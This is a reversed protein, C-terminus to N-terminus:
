IYKNVEELLADKSVPKKLYSAAGIQLGREKEAEDEETTLMIVPITQYSNDEKMSKILELGDMQPMNMDSVVIDVDNRALVELAELGNEAQLINLDADKILYTVLRRTTRCDDVLLVTKKM